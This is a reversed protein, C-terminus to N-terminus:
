RSVGPVNTLSHSNFHSSVNIRYTPVRCATKVLFRFCIFSLRVLSLAFSCLLIPMMVQGREDCSRHSIRACETGRVGRRGFGFFTFLLRVRTEAARKGAQLM